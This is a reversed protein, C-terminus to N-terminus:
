LRGPVVPHLPLHSATRLFQPTLVIALTHRITGAKPTPPTTFKLTLLLSISRNSHGPQPKHDHTINANRTQFPAVANPTYHASKPINLKSATPFGSPMSVLLQDPSPLM